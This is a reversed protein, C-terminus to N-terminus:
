VPLTPTIAVADVTVWSAARTVKVNKVVKHTTKRARNMVLTRPQITENHGGCLTRLATEMGGRVPSYFKGLHLVRLPKM